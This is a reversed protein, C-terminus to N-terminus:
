SKPDRNLKFNNKKNRLDIVQFETDDLPYVVYDVANKNKRSQLFDNAEKKSSKVQITKVVEKNIGSNPTKIILDVSFDMDIFNGNGGRYLIEDGKNVFANAVDTETKEGRKSFEISNKTFNMLDKKNVLYKEFLINFNNKYKLLINKIIETDSTNSIRDIIEKAAPSGLNKARELYTSLLDSLDSYNTNLKNVYHWKGNPDLNGEDDVYVLKKKNLTGIFYQYQKETIKGYSVLINAGKINDEIDKGQINNKLDLLIKDVVNRLNLGEELQIWKGLSNLKDYINGGLVKSINNNNKEEQRTIIEDVSKLNENNSRVCYSPIQLDGGITITMGKCKSESLDIKIVEDGIEIELYGKNDYLKSLDNLTLKGQGGEIVVPNNVYYFKGPVSGLSKGKIAVINASTEVSEILYKLQFETLIFNRM